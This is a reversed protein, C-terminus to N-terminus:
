QNYENNLYIETTIKIYTISLLFEVIMVHPYNTELQYSVEKDQWLGFLHWYRGAYAM